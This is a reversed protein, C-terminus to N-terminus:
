YYKVKTSPLCFQKKPTEYNKRKLGISHYFNDIRNLMEDTIEGIKASNSKLDLEIVPLFDDTHKPIARNRLHTRSHRELDINPSESETSNHDTDNEHSEGSGSFDGSFDSEELIIPDNEDSHPNFTARFGVFGSMKALLDLRITFSNKIIGGRADAPSGTRTM